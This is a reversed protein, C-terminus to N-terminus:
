HSAPQQYPLVAAGVIEGSHTAQVLVVAKLNAVNWDAHPSADAVTEFSGHSPKGLVRLQRVVGTHQLTRGKNEGGHVSTTLGDETLALMVNQASGSADQVSVRLKGPADWSLAVHASMPQAAAAVLDRSVAAADNGLVQVHGDIVM